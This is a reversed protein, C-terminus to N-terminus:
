YIFEIKSSKSISAPSLGDYGEPVPIGLKDYHEKWVPFCKGTAPDNFTMKQIDFFDKRQYAKYYISAILESCYLKDDGMIYYSDYPVGLFELALDNSKYALPAYKSKVRAIRVKPKGDKDVSRALFEKLSVIKVEKDYAEIVKVTDRQTVIMAVHSFDQGKYGDTVKEIADCLPGCDLDQFLIDGPLLEVQEISKQQAFSPIALSAILIFFLNNFVVRTYYTSKKM